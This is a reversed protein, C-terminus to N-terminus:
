EATLAEQIKKKSVMRVAFLGSLVSAAATGILLPTYARVTVFLTFINGTEPTPHYLYVGYMVFYTLLLIVIQEMLSTVAIYLFIKIRRMGAASLIGFSKRNLKLIKYNQSIFLLTVAAAALITKFVIVNTNIVISNEAYALLDERLEYIQFYSQRMSLTYDEYSEYQFEDLYEKWKEGYYIYSMNHTPIYNELEETGKKLDKFRVYATSIYKMVNDQYELDPRNEAKMKKMKPMTIVARGVRLNERYIAGVKFAYKLDLDFHYQFDGESEGETISSYCQLYVTDGIEAGIRMAVADSLLITDESHLLKDDKKVLEGRLAVDTIDQLSPSMSASTTCERFEFYENEKCIFKCELSPSGILATEAINETTFQEKFDKETTDYVIADYNGYKYPYIFFVYNSYMGYFEDVIFYVVFFIVIFHILNKVIQRKTHLM